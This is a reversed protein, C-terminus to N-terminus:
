DGNRIVVNLRSNFIHKAIYKTKSNEINGLTESDNRFYQLYYNGEYGTESVLNIMKQIDKASLLDSHITTRVEFPFKIDNLLKLTASFEDYLNSKTIGFYKEKIAKFDLAIYDVLKEDILRNLFHTNSGNTDIKVLYGMQKIKQLLLHISKHLTCEGGSLVVADLLNKRSQLFTLIQEISIKGKGLVIEPNYCYSCRMNCGTFWLICATKDPYDLLTFPTFNYIPKTAALNQLINEKNINV